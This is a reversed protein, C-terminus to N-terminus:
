NQKAYDADRNMKRKKKKPFFITKREKIHFTKYLIWVKIDSIWMKYMIHFFTLCDYITLFKRACAHMCSKLENSERERMFKLEQIVMEKLFLAISHRLDM